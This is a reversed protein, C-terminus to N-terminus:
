STASPILPRHRSLESDQVHPEGRSREGRDRAQDRNAVPLSAHPLEVRAQTHFTRGFSAVEPMASSRSLVGPAAGNRQAISGSPRPRCLTPWRSIHEGSVYIAHSFPSPRSKRLGGASITSTRRHIALQIAGDAARWHPSRWAQPGARRRADRALAGFSGNLEPRHVFRRAMKEFRVAEELWQEAPWDDWRTQHADM